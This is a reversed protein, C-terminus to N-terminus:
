PKSDGKNRAANAAALVWRVADVVLDPGPADRHMNHDARDTVIHQGNSVQAFLEGHLGRWANIRAKRQEESIGKALVSRRISTLVTMPVDPLTGAVDLQGSDWVAKAGDVERRTLAPHRKAAAAEAEAFEEPRMLRRWEIDQREHSPDVLVLGAVESPYKTAFARVYLGGISAGVLVYPPLVGARTLMTHLETAVAAPTRVYSSDESGRAGARSYCVTAAEGHLRAAIPLWLDLHGGAGTEFIVTFRGAGGRVMQLKHGGVDIMERVPESAPQAAALAVCAAMMIGVVRLSRVAFRTRWGSSGLPRSLTETGLRLSPRRTSTMLETVQINLTSGRANRTRAVPRM